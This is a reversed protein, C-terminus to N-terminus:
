SRMVAQIDGERDLVNMAVGGSSRQFAVDIRAGGLSLNRLTLRDLFDPLVPRDFTVARHASDFGLGLCARILAFPTTAAWAQPACAVPYLTPGQGQRRPFGCILEPLRRLDVYTATHFLGAFVRASAVNYGYRSFGEAVLANDHPWVSGNHYSMPNYRSEGAAITRIGWGSFSAPDMLGQVLRGARHPLAIGAFLAHGANSSRVRCPQKRGDLALVYTGLAEDWFTEDFAQRLTEARRELQAARDPFGLRMAIAAGARWAAYVYAQLEVLAIPGEAMRGDAHFISDYSDKWGQNLLGNPTRRQYEFFGDGDLDGHNEIWGLAAELNPWLQRLTQLDGTRELYAGALMLFLPTSDVSGYYRRFPVEGLEAMEGQRTEHLIKGPEADSDPDETTAQTAALYALVGHAVAPDRWLTHWAAILADRGFATSYWPIGAYPYPGHPTETLLMSLDAASRSLAENFIENSSEIAAARALGRRISRRAARLALGFAPQPLVRQLAEGAEDGCGIEIFLARRGGPPLDLVFVARAAELHTPVPAFRLRTQRPRSDLGTYSLTVSDADLVAPHYQGHRERQRGRAEFLDAFDAAYHLELRVRHPRDDFNRISLREFCTAQWLFRYRRLHLRDHQLVQDENEDPLDPNTLDCTLAANDDRLASSLLLPQMGDITLTLLSLHRTDRHYIGEPTGPRGRLDGAHDFLAFSDDHKLTCARGEQLSATAPTTVLDIAAPPPVDM